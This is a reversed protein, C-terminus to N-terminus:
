RGSGAPPHRRLQPSTATRARIATCPYQRLPPRRMAKRSVTLEVLASANRRTRAPSRPGITSRPSAVPRRARGARGPKPTAALYDRCSAAASRDPAARPPAAVQCKDAPSASCSAAVANAGVSAACSASLHGFSMSHPPRLIAPMRISPSPAGSATATPMPTLQRWWGAPVSNGAVSKGGLAGVDFRWVSQELPERRRHAARSAWHSRPAPKATM